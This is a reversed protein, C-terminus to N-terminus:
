LHLAPPFPNSPTDSAPFTGNMIINHAAASKEQCRVAALLASDVEAARGLFDVM